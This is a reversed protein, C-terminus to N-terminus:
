KIAKFSQKLDFRVKGKEVDENTGFAATRLLNFQDTDPWKSSREALWETFFPSAQERANNYANLTNINRIDIGAKAFYPRLNRVGEQTFCLRGAEDILYYHNDVIYGENIPLKAQIALINVLGLPSM